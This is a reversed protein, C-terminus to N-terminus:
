AIRQNVGAASTGSHPCAVSAEAQTTNLRRSGARWRTTNWECLPGSATTRSPSRRTMSKGALATSGALWGASSAASPAFGFASYEPKWHSASYSVSACTRASFGSKVAFAKRSTWPTITV